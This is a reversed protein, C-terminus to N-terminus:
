EDYESRVFFFCKKKLLLLFLFDKLALLDPVLPLVFATRVIHALLPWSGRRTTCTRGCRGLAELGRARVEYRVRAALHRLAHARARGRLDDLQAVHVVVVQLRALVRRAEEQGRQALEEVLADLLEIRDVLDVLLIPQDILGVPRPFRQAQQGFAAGEVEHLILIDLGYGLVQLHDGALEGLLEGEGVLLDGLSMLLEELHLLLLKLFLLLLLLLLLLVVWLHLLFLFRLFLLLLLLLLHRCDFLFLRGNLRGRVLLLRDRRWRAFCVIVILFIIIAILLIRLRRRRGVLGHRGLVRAHEVLRSIILRLRQWSTANALVRRCAGRRLWCGLLDVLLLLLLLLLLLVAVLLLLLVLVFVFRRGRCAAHAAIAAAIAAVIAHFLHVVVVLHRVVVVRAVHLHRGGYLVLLLACCGFTRRRLRVHHEVRLQDVEHRRTHAVLGLEDVNRQVQADIHWFVAVSVFAEDVFAALHELRPRYAFSIQESRTRIFLFDVTKLVCVCTFVYSCSSRLSRGM